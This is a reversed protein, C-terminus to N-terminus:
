QARLVYGYAHKRDDDGDEVYVGQLEPAFGPLQNIGEVLHRFYDVATRTWVEGPHVCLIGPPYPLAGELAIRGEAEELDILEGHGRIYEGEAEIPSMAYPPFYEKRFLKKQLDSMNREKYFDHMEQCLKRITYGQYHTEYHEYVLPLVKEMPADEDIFTEFRVLADVLRKMKEESEAPTLLFLIDNLDCKEPILRNERMFEAVIAGPIGFDEYTGSVIDIGPTILMLKMPDLFYQSGSYGHFGHWAAGPKFTWYRRDSAIQDTHGDEWKKTGIFDPIFPRIYHCRSLIDKRVRISMLLADRWLKKGAEGEHIKANIDLASFLQYFPSTTAHMMFANNMRKHPVYRDQGRIHADKKHIQSTMSFGAQQKHVSQTVFIGPDDPGLDLLLPSADNMMPIFEEYGVWASDFFIYDCLHGIREVIQRANGICGDYTGLEIVALRIPRDEKAKEPNREAILARIYDEELCHSPIGGISGYANRATELYVPVAGALVLAGLDISKHNNRDYLVIDGPALVANTVIKNSTSTGNLVFYTKDAHFVKAAHKQAALAPGEHILLDGLDADSSCLDARFVNPGYFDYFAKGAPHKKFFAGGQHGPTDFQDNHRAVYKTLTDFFPPLLEKEYQLAGRLIKKKWSAKEKIALSICSIESVNKAAALGTELLFLPIGFAHITDYTAPISDQSTMVVASVETLDAGDLRTLKAADIALGLDMVRDTVAIKLPKLITGEKIIATKYDTAGRAIQQLSSHPTLLSSHPTFTRRM